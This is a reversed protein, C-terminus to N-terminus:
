LVSWPYPVTRLFCKFVKQGFAKGSIFDRLFKMKDRFQGMGRRALDHFIFKPFLYILLLFGDHVFIQQVLLLFIKLSLRPSKTFLM